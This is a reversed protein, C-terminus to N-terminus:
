WCPGSPSAYPTAGEETTLGVRGTSFRRCRQAPVAPCSKQNQPWDVASVRKTQSWDAASGGDSLDGVSVARRLTTQPVLSVHIFTNQVLDRLHADKWPSLAPWDTTSSSTSVAQELENASAIREDVIASSDSCSVAPLPSKFPSVEPLDAFLALPLPLPPPSPGFPGPTPGFLLTGEGFDVDELCLPEDLCFKGTCTEHGDTLNLQSSVDIFAPVLHQLYSKDCSSEDHWAAVELPAQTPSPVFPGPTPGFCIGSVYSDEVDDLCLPEDPCFRHGRCKLEDDVAPDNDSATSLGAPRPPVFSETSSADLNSQLETRRVATYGLGDLKLECIDAFRSDQLLESLRSYGLATESLEVQFQSRFLRKVSPLSVAGPCGSGDDFVATELLGRMCYRAQEWTACPLDQAEQCPNDCARQEEACLEKLRCQSRNYSVIAGGLYGLLKRKTMALQVIHCVQGLSYGSLFPLQRARLTQACSYRGGPLTIENNEDGIYLAAQYWMEEPYEDVQSHFDVFRATRGVMTLSWDGAAESDVVFQENEECMRRLHQMDIARCQVDNSAIDESASTRNSVVGVTSSQEAIRKRILRGLPKLCDAYLSEVAAAIEETTLPLLRKQRDRRARACVHGAAAVSFEACSGNARAPAAIDDTERVEAGQSRKAANRAARRCAGSRKQAM